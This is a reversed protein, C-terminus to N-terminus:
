ELEVKIKCIPCQDNQDFWQSICAEHYKHLCPLLMIKDQDEFESICIQCSKSEESLNGAKSKDFNFVPLNEKIEKTLPTKGAEQVGQALDDLNNFRFIAGLGPISIVNSGNGFSMNLSRGHIGGFGGMMGFPSLGSQSSPLRRLVPLENINYRGLNVNQGNITAISQIPSDEYQDPSNQHVEQGNIFLRGNVFSITRRNQQPQGSVNQRVNQTTVARGSPLLSGGGFSFLHNLM